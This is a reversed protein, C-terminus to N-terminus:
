QYRDGIAPDEFSSHQWTGDVSDDDHPEIDPGLQFAHGAIPHPGAAWHDADEILHDIATNLWRWLAEHYADLDHDPCDQYLGSAADILRADQKDICLRENSPM